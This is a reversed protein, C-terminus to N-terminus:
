LAYACAEYSPEPIGPLGDHGRGARDTRGVLRVEERHATVDSFGLSSLAQHDLCDVSESPDVAQDVVGPDEDALRERFVRRVVIRRDSGYVQGPEEVHGLADDPLHDALAAAVDDVDGGAEDVM